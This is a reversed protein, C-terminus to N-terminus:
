IGLQWIRIEVTGTQSDAMHMMPLDTKKEGGDGPGPEGAVRRM